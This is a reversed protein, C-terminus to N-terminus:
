PSSKHLGLAGARKTYRGRAHAKAKGPVLHPIRPLQWADTRVPLGTFLCHGLEHAFLGSVIEYREVRTRNQTVIENGANIRITLNDTCAAEGSKPEWSLRVRVRRNYSYRRTQAVAVDEFHLALVRSTFFQRDSIKSRKEDMLRRVLKHNVRAM